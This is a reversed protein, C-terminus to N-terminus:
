ARLFPTRLEVSHHDVSAPAPEVCDHDKTIVSQSPTQSMQYVRKLLEFCDADLENGDV